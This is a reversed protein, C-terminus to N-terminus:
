WFIGGFTYLRHQQLGEVFAKNNDKDDEHDDMMGEAFNDPLEQNDAKGPVPVITRMLDLIQEDIISLLKEQYESLM